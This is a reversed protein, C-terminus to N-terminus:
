THVTHNSNGGNYHSTDASQSLLYVKYLHHANPTHPMHMGHAAQMDIM